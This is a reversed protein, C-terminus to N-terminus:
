NCVFYLGSVAAGLGGFGVRGVWGRCTESEDLIPSTTIPEKAFAALQNFLLLTGISDIVDHPSRLM